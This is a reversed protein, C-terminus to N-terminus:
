LLENNMFIGNLKNCFVMTYGIKKLYEVLESYNNNIELIILKPKYKDWNNGKLVQMEHGEVDISIFSILGDSIYKDFVTELTKIEVDITKKLTFKNSKILDKANKENLTSFATASYDFTENNENLIYLKKTDLEKGIGINLNIDNPRDNKIKEFLEPQPEINIGRWGKLSFRKTNNIKIPDNAGIDVYFGTEKENLLSDIIIDENKQSFSNLIPHTFRKIDNSKYGICKKVMIKLIKKFM